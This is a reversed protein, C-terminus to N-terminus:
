LNQVEIFSFRATVATNNTDTEARFEVLSKEGVVFPQSPTLEAFSERQTDVLLRFVEYKANSVLSTVICKYTVLPNGGGGTKVANLFLWDMLATHNAQVFFFAHQTSGQEAPIEAQTTLATSATLTIDGVNFGNSGALYVAARNVGLFSNTTTVTTTGDLTIVEILEEYNADIGYIVISNAGTSGDDDSTSTSVVDLTEASSLRTFDGGVSWITESAATDVDSNYGWKNWTTSGGRLGQAVEYHYDTPRVITADTDNGISQNIPANPIKAFTGFYTYLRIYTQDSASDNVFRVRFYRAGKVATHFEHIGASVQFGNVPFTNVNTGDVSFDFYLTGAQDTQCSVMVDPYNNQEFTGTYTAAGALPTTTTNNTSEFSSAVIDLFGQDSCTLDTLVDSTNEAQLKAARWNTM